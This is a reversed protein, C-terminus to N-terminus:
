YCGPSPLPLAVSKKSSPVACAKKKKLVPIASKCHQTLKLHAVCHNMYIYICVCVYLNCM